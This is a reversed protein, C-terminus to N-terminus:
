GPPGTPPDFAAGQLHDSLVFEAMTEFMPVELSQGRGTRARAVVAALIAGAARMGVVRDVIPLPVYRPPGGDAAATLAPIAV